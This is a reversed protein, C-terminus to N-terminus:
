QRPFNGHLWFRPFTGVGVDEYYFSKSDERMDEYYISVEKLWILWCFCLIAFLLVGIKLNLKFREPSQPKYPTAINEPAILAWYAILIHLGVLMSGPAVFVASVGAHFLAGSASATFAVLYLLQKGSTGADTFNLLAARKKWFYYAAQLVMIGMFLVLAWGYEAAWLLYMNHPHGFKVSEAYVDTLIQHTLWSQPGMGYPINQISMQWAEIFMPLRGSDGTDFVKVQAEGQFVWLPIAVSLLVWFLGGFAVHMLLVKLWPLVRKGFILGVLLVGFAIGLISGRATSLLLMWWWMGAGLLIAIRWARVHSLPGDLAALPLLPLCWTAIHSWYRINDFGYPIYNGIDPNRDLISFLYFTFSSLGYIISCGAICLLFMRLYDTRAGVRALVVGGLCSALFFLAYMGPEVWVYESNRFPLALILFASSLLLTPLTLKFLSFFGSRSGVAYALLSAASHLGLVLALIIRQSAYPGAKSINFFYGFLVVVLSVLGSAVLLFVFLAENVRFKGLAM